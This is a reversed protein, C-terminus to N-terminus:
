SGSLRVSLDDAPLERPTAVTTPSPVIEEARKLLSGIMRSNKQHWRAVFMRTVFYISAFFAVIALTALLPSKSAAGVGVGVGISGFFGGLFSLLWALILGGGQNFLLNFRTSNGEPKARFHIGVVDANGSWERSLGVTSVAGPQGVVNRLESVVDEWTSEDLLGPCSVERVIRTPAGWFYFEKGGVGSEARAVAAEAVHRADIGVEGALRQIEALTLGVKESAVGPDAAQSEAAARLIEAVEREGYRREAM